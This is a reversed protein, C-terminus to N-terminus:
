KCLCIFFIKWNVGMDCNGVIDLNVCNKEQVYFKSLLFCM